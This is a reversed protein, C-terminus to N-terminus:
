SKGLILDVAWCGRVHPVASRLHGLLEESDCGADMLADALIPLAMYGGAQWPFSEYISRALDVVTSTLWRPDLTIPHFPNGFIERVLEAQFSKEHAIGSSSAALCVNEAVEEALEDPHCAIAVAWAAHRYPILSEVSEKVLEAGVDFSSEYAEDLEATTANGDAFAEIVELAKLSRHDTILHLIRQCSALGFLRSRREPLPARLTPVRLSGLMKGPDDSTLWEEETVISREM